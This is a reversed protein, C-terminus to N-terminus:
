PGKHCQQRPAPSPRRFWRLAQTTKGPERQRRQMPGPKAEIERRVVERLSIGIRVTIVIKRTRSATVASAMDAVHAAACSILKPIMAVSEALVWRSRQSGKKRSM